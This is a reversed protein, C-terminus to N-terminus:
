EDEDDEDKYVVEPLEIDNLDKDLYPKIFKEAAAFEEVPSLLPFSCYEEIALRALHIAKYYPSAEMRAIEENEIYRIEYGYEELILSELKELESEFDVDFCAIYKQLDFLPVNSIQINDGDEVRAILVFYNREDDATFSIEALCAGSAPGCAVGSGEYGWRLNRIKM